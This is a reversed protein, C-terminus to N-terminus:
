VRVWHTKSVTLRQSMLHLKIPTLLGKLGECSGIKRKTMLHNVSYNTDLRETLFSVSPINILLFPCFKLM